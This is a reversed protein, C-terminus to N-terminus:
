KRAEILLYLGYNRFAAKILWRPWVTRMVSLLFGRHRQGVSGQLLDGFSLRVSIDVASFSCFMERAEAVSYAKTGPSELYHAYIYDLSRGLKGAALAYRAWLMYGVLSQRHYIMVRAKGSRRLVRFIEEVAQPTNPSHHIVGWSYVLDFSNDEFPLHEADAVRLDSQLDHQQLRASTLEIAQQTLDIGALLHPGAKAWELHDAGMGVGIELVDKGQGSGFDAFDSIYPELKYRARAHSAFQEKLDDGSAYVEGCPGANWFDRVQRKLDSTDVASKKAMNAEM